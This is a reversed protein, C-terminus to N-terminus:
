GAALLAVGREVQPALLFVGLGGMVAAIVFGAAIMRLDYGAGLAPDILAVTAIHAGWVTVAAVAAGLAVWTTKLEAREAAEARGLALSLLFPGILCGVALLLYSTPGHGTAIVNQM